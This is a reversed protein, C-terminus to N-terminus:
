VTPSFNRMSHIQIRLLHYYYYYHFYYKCVNINLINNKYHNYLSSYTPETKGQCNHERTYVVIQGKSFVQFQEPHFKYGPHLAKDERMHPLAPTWRYDSVGQTNLPWWYGTLKHEATSPDFENALFWIDSNYGDNSSDTISMMRNFYM